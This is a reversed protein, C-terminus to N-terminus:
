GHRRRHLEEYIDSELKKLTAHLESFAAEDILGDAKLPFLAGSAFAAGRLSRKLQVIGLGAAFEDDESMGLAQALGGSIELVGDMLVGASGPLEPPLLEHLRM